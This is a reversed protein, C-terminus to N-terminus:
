KDRGEGHNHTTPIHKFQYIEEEEEEHLSNRTGRKKERKKTRSTPPDFCLRVFPCKPRMSYDNKKPTNKNSAKKQPFFFLKSPKERLFRKENNIGRVKNQM